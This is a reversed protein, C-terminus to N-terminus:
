KKQKPNFNGARMPSFMLHTMNENTATNLNKPSEHTISIWGKFAPRALDGKLDEVVLRWKSIYM